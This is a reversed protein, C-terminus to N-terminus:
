GKVLSQARCAISISSWPFSRFMVGPVTSTSWGKLRKLLSVMTEEGGGKEDGDAVLSFVVWSSSARVEPAVVEELPLRNGIPALDDPDPIEMWRGPSAISKVKSCHPSKNPCRPESASMALM